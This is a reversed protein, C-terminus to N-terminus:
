RRDIIPAGCRMPARVVTAEQDCNVDQFERVNVRLSSFTHSHLLKPSELVTFTYTLGLHNGIEFGDEATPEAVRRMSIIWKLFVKAEERLNQAGGIPACGDM